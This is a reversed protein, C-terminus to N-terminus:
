TLKWEMHTLKLELYTHLGVYLYFTHGFSSSFECTISTFYICVSPTCAITAVHTMTYLINSESVACYNSAHM